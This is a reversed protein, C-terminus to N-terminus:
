EQPLPPLDALFALTAQEARQMATALDWQRLDRNGTANSLGRVEIFPVGAALCQHAVAAGEMNECLGGCRQQRLLALDDRGSGCSVTVFPGCGVQCGLQRALTRCSQTLQGTLLPDCPFRNYYCGAPTRLLPLDLQSLDRFGQPTAVGEDGYHEECAVALDGVALGSAPYFGGCGHLVVLRPRQQLLLAAAAAANAKGVGGCLLAVPQGQLTGQCLDYSGLRHQRPHLLQERLQRQEAAVACQLAIM